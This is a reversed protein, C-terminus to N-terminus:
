DLGASFRPPRLRRFLLLDREARAVRPSGGREYCERRAELFTETWPVEPELLELAEACERAGPLHRAADFVIEARLDDFILLGFPQSLAKVLRAGLVPDLTALRKADELADMTIQGLPWPDTRLHIFFTELAATAEENKGERVLLRAEVAEAEIPEVAHLAEILGASEPQAESAFSDAAATLQTLGIPPSPQARWERIARAHDRNVFAALAAFRHAREADPPRFAVPQASAAAFFGALEDDVRGWDIPDGHLRLRGYELTAATSRIEDLCDSRGGVSRAFGFEVFNQDDTNLAEGEQDALKAALEPGAVFHALMGELDIARWTTALASRYPEERIRARLAGVDGDLPRMTAVLLLDSKELEWSQVHPFVSTLTAYVTRVTQGDVEYAQIWQLFIGGERLRSAAAQYYERTFLSAIGARYPNSPESFILDYHQRSTLLVERADGIYIRVKPNSLVDRNALASRRAVELVAPELEAVDVVTMDPIAALWGATSGTGLGIVMASTPHPHQIAGVLGSMVATGADVRANGDSKGNIIFAVGDTRDIGVSSERGDQEWVIGRRRAHEWLRVDNPTGVASVPVRGAGIPSHRWVATPGTARMLLVVVVAVLAAAAPVVYNRRRMVAYAAAALGLASLLWVTLRWCGPATLAPMLGFGGALSGIVAGLTNLAYTLGVHRGVHEEGEGLLGILLPFQFGSLLSAPLVVLITMLTWSGVQVGFGLSSVPRLAVGLVALRDGLAYPLAVFAAELLCTWAFDVVTPRRGGLTLAYGVGGLGIGLLAVALILGFTFVSGGLLPALMRYWVLEMLCFAFGVGAAALLVLWPPAQAEAPPEQTPEHAAEPEHAVNRALSRAAVAVLLNILCALWLSMRTGFVEFLLFTALMCGTVAGLTNIGYLLAVAGRGRDGREEVARAAAPLTGGMALTPVAFVLASLVVRVVSALVAGLVPGGGVGIYTARVLWLLGPTVAAFLAIIAELAGYLGLPRPHRDARKGLLLGGTGLGGVFCAVVAASAMTSAGFILRLERLWVTEYILSCMGSLFLLGGVKSVSRSV